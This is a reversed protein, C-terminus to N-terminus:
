RGARESRGDGAAGRQGEVPESRPRVQGEVAVSAQGDFTGSGTIAINEADYSYILPSYNMAENGEFRTLVVPLYDAPDTSFRVTAGAELHLNVNSKLHIPGRVLWEGARVVVRGGGAAHCAAIAKDFAPKCDAQGDGRADYDTVDSDRDAFSLPKIRALIEPVADWGIVEDAALAASALILGIAFCAINQLTATMRM